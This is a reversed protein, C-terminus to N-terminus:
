YLYTPEHDGEDVENYLPETDLLTGDCDFIIATVPLPARAATRSSPSSPPLPTAASIADM